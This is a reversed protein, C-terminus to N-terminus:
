KRWWTRIIRRTREVPVSKGHQPLRFGLVEDDVDTQFFHVLCSDSCLTVHFASHVLCSAFFSLVFCCRVKKQLNLTYHVANSKHVRRAFPCARDQENNAAKDWNGYYVLCRGERSDETVRPKSHGKLCMFQLAGDQLTAAHLTSVLPQRQKEVYATCQRVRRNCLADFM